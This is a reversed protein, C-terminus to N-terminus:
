AARREGRKPSGERSPAVSNSRSATQSRIRNFRRLGADASGTNSPDDDYYYDFVPSPPIYGDGRMPMLSGCRSSGICEAAMSKTNNMIEALDFVRM